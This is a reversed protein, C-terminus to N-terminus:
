IMYIHTILFTFINQLINISVLWIKYQLNNTYNDNYNRQLHSDKHSLMEVVPVTQLCVVEGLRQSVHRELYVETCTKQLIHLSRNHLFTGETSQRQQNPPLFPMRGTFLLAPTSAHNDTQLLTYVQM